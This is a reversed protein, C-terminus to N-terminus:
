QVRLSRRQKSGHLVWVQANVADSHLNPMRNYWIAAVGAVDSSFRTVELSTLEIIRFLGVAVLRSAELHILCCTCVSCWVPVASNAATLTRRNIAIKSRFALM